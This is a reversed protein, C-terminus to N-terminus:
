EPKQGPAHTEAKLPLATERMRECMETSSRPRTEEAVDRQRWASLTRHKQPSGDNSGGMWTTGSSKRTKLEM